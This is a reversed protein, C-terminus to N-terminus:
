AREFDFDCVECAIAIGRRRAAEIKRRRLRLDRERFVHRRILLRGETAAMEEAEEDAPASLASLEGRIAAAFTERLRRTCKPRIVLLNPLLENTPRAAM